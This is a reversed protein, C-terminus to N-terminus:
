ATDWVKVTQDWSASALRTGDPSFSVSYVSKAHGKFTLLQQGTAADWVRVNTDNGGSALRTGDPSFVVSNVFPGHG